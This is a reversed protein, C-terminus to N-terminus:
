LILALFYGLRFYLHQKGCLKLGFIQNKFIKKIKQETQAKALQSPSVYKQIRIQKNKETKKQKKPPSPPPTMM